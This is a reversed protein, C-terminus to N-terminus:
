GFAYALFLRSQGSDRVVVGNTANVSAALKLGSTSANTNSMWFKRRRLVKECSSSFPAANEPEEGNVNTM